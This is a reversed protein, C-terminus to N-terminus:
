EKEWPAKSDLIKEVSPDYEFNDIMRKLADDPVGHKNRGKLFEFNWKGEDDYLDPNWDPKEFKVEYGYQQALEVSKRIEWLKIHTNDVVVPSIGQQMAEETRNQNWKHAVSLKKADFNYNGEEDYFYDDTSLVVGDKGLDNALTSKGSGSVGRVIYLLKGQESEQAEKDWNTAM